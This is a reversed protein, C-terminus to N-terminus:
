VLGIALGDVLAVSHFQYSLFLIDDLTPSASQVAGDFFARSLASPNFEREIFFASQLPVTGAIRLIVLNETFMAYSYRECYQVPASSPCAPTPILQSQRGARGLAGPRRLGRQHHASRR